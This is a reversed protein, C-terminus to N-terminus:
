FTIYGPFNLGTNSGAITATPAVNGSVGTPYVTISGNAMYNTVYLFRGAPDVAIGSPSALGTNSGAITAV